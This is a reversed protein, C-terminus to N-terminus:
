FSMRRYIRLPATNQTVRVFDGSSSETHLFLALTLHGCCLLLSLAVLACM